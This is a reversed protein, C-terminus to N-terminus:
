LPIVDEGDHRHDEGIHQADDPERTRMGRKANSRQRGVSRSVHSFLQSMSIPPMYVDPRGSLPHAFLDGPPPLEEDHLKEEM